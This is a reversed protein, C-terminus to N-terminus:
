RDTETVGGQRWRNLQTPVRSRPFELWRNAAPELVAVMDDFEVVVFVFLFRRSRCLPNPAALRHNNNTARARQMVIAAAAAAGGLSASASRAARVALSCLGVYRGLTLSLLRRALTANSSRTRAGGPLLELVLASSRPLEVSGVM